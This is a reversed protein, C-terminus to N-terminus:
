DQELGNTIRSHRYKLEASFASITECVIGDVVEGDILRRGLTYSRYLSFVRLVVIGEVDM